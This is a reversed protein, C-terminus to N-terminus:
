SSPSPSRIITFFVILPLYHGIAMRSLKDDLLALYNAFGSWESASFGDWDYFSYRANQVVPLLVFLTYMLFA